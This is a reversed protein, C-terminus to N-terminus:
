KKCQNESNEDTKMSLKKEDTKQLEKMAKELEAAQKDKTGAESVILWFAGFDILIIVAELIACIIKAWDM